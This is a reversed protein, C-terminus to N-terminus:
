WHSAMQLTDYTCILDFSTSPQQSCERQCSPLILRESHQTDWVHTLCGTQAKNEIKFFLITECSLKHGQRLCSNQPLDMWITGTQKRLSDSINASPKSTATCRCFEPLLTGQLFFYFTIELLSFPFFFTHTGFLPNYINHLVEYQIICLCALPLFWDSSCEGKM